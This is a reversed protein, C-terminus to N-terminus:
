RVETILDPSHKCYVKRDGVQAGESRLDGSLCIQAYLNLIDEEEAPSLVGVGAYTLSVLGFIM